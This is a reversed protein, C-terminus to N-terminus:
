ESNTFVDSSRTVATVEDVVGVGQQGLGAGFAVRVIERVEAPPRRSSPLCTSSTSTTGQETNVPAGAHVRVGEPLQEYYAIAPGMIALGAEDLRKCLEAYLPQIVPGIRDSEYSEATGSLEALRVSAVSKIVVDTLMVGETEIMRLRAEVRALRATDAAVQAALEARRLRLMGYLEEPGVKHELIQGVKQLSLGLDKLAILRNLHSLQRAEYYRYGTV